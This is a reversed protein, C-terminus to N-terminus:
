VGRGRKRERDFKDGEAIILAAAKVLDRRFGSPKWWGESWPWEHPTTRAASGANLAYTGGAAALQGPPHMADHDQTWGEAEVQRRREAIAALMFPSLKMRWGMTEFLRELVYGRVISLVTFIGTIAFNTSLPPNFGFLPFVILQAAFAVAFGTSTSILSKLLSTSRSQKM